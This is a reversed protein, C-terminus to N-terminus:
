AQGIRFKVHLRPTAFAVFQQTQAFPVAIAIGFVNDGPQLVEILM